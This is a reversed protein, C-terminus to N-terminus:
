CTRPLDRASTIPLGRDTGIRVGGSAFNANAFNANAFNADANMDDGPSV